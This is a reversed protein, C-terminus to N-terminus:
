YTQKHVSAFCPTPTYPGIEGADERESVEQQKKTQRGRSREGVGRTVANGPLRDVERLM